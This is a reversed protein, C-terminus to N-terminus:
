RSRQPARRVAQRLRGLTGGLFAEDTQRAVRRRRDTQLLRELASEVERHHRLRALDLAQVVYHRAEPDDIRNPVL